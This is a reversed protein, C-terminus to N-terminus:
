LIRVYNENTASKGLVGFSYKELQDFKEKLYIGIRGQAIDVDFHKLFCHNEIFTERSNDTVMLIAFM